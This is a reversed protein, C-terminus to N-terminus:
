VGPNFHQFSMSIEFRLFQNQDM